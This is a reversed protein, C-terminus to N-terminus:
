VWISFNESTSVHVREVSMGMWLGYNMRVLNKIIMRTKSSSSTLYFAGGGWNSNRGNSILNGECVLVSMLLQSENPHSM